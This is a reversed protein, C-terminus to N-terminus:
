LALDIPDTATTVDIKKGKEGFLNKNKVVYKFGKEVEISYLGDTETSHVMIRGERGMVTGGSSSYVREGQPFVEITETLLPVGVIDQTFVYVLILDPVIPDPIILSPFETPVYPASLLITEYIQESADAEDADWYLLFADDPVTVTILFTFGPGSIIGTTVRSGIATGDSEYFQYGLNTLAYGSSLVFSRM